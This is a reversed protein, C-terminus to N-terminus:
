YFQDRFIYTTHECILVGLVSETLLIDSETKVLVLSYIERKITQTSNVPNTLLSKKKKEFCGLNEGSASNGKKSQTVVVVTKNFYRFLHVSLLKFGM